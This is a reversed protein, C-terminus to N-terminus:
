LGRLGIKYKSEYEYLDFLRVEYELYDGSSYDTDVYSFEV